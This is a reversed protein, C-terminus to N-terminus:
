PDANIQGELELLRREMDAQNKRMEEIQQLLLSDPVGPVVTDHPDTVHEPNPEKIPEYGALNLAENVDAEVARAMRIVTERKPNVPVDVGSQRQRGTVVQRWRAESIKANKAAQRKSMEGRADELLKGLPTLRQEAVAGVECAFYHSTWQSCPECVKAVVRKYSQLVAPSM